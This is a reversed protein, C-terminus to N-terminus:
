MLDSLSAMLLVRFACARGIRSLESFMCLISVAAFYPLCDKFEEVTNRHLARARAQISESDAHGSSDADGSNSSSSARHLAGAALQVASDSNRRSRFLFANWLSTQSDDSMLSASNSKEALAEHM